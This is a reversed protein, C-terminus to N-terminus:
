KKFISNFKKDQQRQESIIVMITSIDVVYQDKVYIYGDIKKSSRIIRSHNFLKYENSYDYESALITTHKYLLWRVINRAKSYVAVRSTGFIIDETTIGYYKAVIDSISVLPYLVMGVTAFKENM